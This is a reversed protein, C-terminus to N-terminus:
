LRDHRREMSQSLLIVPLLGVLVLILASPAAYELKEDSVYQFVSTALTEFNFPRLLLTAPLEKMSEIFVLLTGALLGRSVLPIHVRSVLQMPSYGLTRGAQDLSPSLTGLSASISGLTITAFRIMYALIVTVMSGSFVLGVPALGLATLLRNLGLDAQGSVILVGIALVTGPLAYGTTYLGTALAILRGPRFRQYLCLGLSVLATLLAAITATILSNRSLRSLELWSLLNLYHSLYDVLVLAPVIFGLTVLGWCWGLALYKQWGHLLIRAAARTRGQGQYLRQRRRSFKELSILLLAVALMVTAIRAASQLDGYGLWTDYVATTLTAVAFYSVTAYDGLTEMAILALGTLIAPRAMPLTVRFFSGAPSCGLLRSAMLQSHSQELFAARALLYLYPYLVLALMIIAGGISRTDPFYYDGPQQWGMLARLLGQVPGSYDLLDTYIYAIVYSPMALPLVLLWQLSRQGPLTCRAMIWAAPIALLLALLMVGSVVAASNLIYSPLVTQWLHSFLTSPAPRLSVLLLALLPLSAVLGPLLGGLAASRSLLGKM